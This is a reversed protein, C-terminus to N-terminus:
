VLSTCYLVQKSYKVYLVCQANFLATEQFPYNQKDVSSNFRFINKDNKVETFKNILFWKRAAPLTFVSGEPVFGYHLRVDM